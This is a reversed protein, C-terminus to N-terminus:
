YKFARCNNCSRYVSAGQVTAQAGTNLTAFLPLPVRFNRGSDGGAGIRMSANPFPLVANESFISAPEVTSWRGGM